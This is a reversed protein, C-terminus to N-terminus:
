TRQKADPRSPQPWWRKFGSSGRQRRKESAIWSKKTMLSNLQSRGKPTGTQRAAWLSPLLLLLSRLPLPLSPEPEKGAFIAATTYCNSAIPLYGGKFTM